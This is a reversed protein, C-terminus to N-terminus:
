ANRVSGHEVDHLYCSLLVIGGPAVQQVWLAAVRGPSGAPSCDVATLASDVGAAVHAPTCIGVGASWGGAVTQTARSAAIRWGDKRVQAQLDALQEAGAHHEQCLIAVPVDGRCARCHSVAARLQPAGSSNFTWISVTDAEGSRQRRGRGRRKRPQSPSVAADEAAREKDRSAGEACELRAVEQMTPVSPLAEDAFHALKERHVYEKWASKAYHIPCRDRTSSSRAMYGSLGYIRTRHTAKDKEAKSLPDSVWWGERTRFGRGDHESPVEEEEVAPLELVGEV